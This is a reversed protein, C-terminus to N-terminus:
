QKTKCPNRNNMADKLTNFIIGRDVDKNFCSMCLFEYNGVPPKQKYIFRTGCRCCDAKYKEETTSM